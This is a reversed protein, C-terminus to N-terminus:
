LLKKLYYSVFIFEMGSFNKQCDKKAKKQTKQEVVRLGLRDM